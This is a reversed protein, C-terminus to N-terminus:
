GAEAPYIKVEVRRNKAHNYTDGPDAPQDWGQGVVNFKNPDLEYKKVLAEKVANARNLSLEKVLTPPIKGQMSSDTHGEIIIRAAGFQGALKAIEELVFDVNPDYQSEVDKGDVQKTVTKKLDWSNPFFHIIVTNTLIEEEARIETTAKPAFRVTYEDKQSGYKPDKGLNNIVSFDMVQDFPVPQHTIAGIRRYLYYAQNWVREFNAPNNQNMFFQYNEAWNTNHADAFMSLADAAPLNYGASMLEACKQKAADTKLTVMSDFIGRAIAEIIDPRDNSFDARAFWVDAILKNATATTVLLRNGRVKELNYIDPAWSAAASIEKQSNFAAAAQFADETFVMEVESPQVGGAVLMNLAFYHSPSNQALVMKKGRLDAVTKINERVIIGDGGNSWDIQQFVRPMVRSDRPKGTSDVFGELFLPLMDLTAWGIHVDGGAYADRMAVPNDILVLEVKFTQGEATTWTKGPRFGDNAYIIPAWGAWVNLAFRVTNDELPKYAATGKVEPLRESPKFTYEKVTTIGQTDTAEAGDTMGLQSPDIKGDGGKNPGGGQPAFIDSRYVAFAILGLVVVVVAVFFMPKPKGAM